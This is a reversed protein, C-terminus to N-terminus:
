GTFPELVHSFDWTNQTIGPPQGSVSHDILESVKWVFQYEEGPQHQGRLGVAVASATL